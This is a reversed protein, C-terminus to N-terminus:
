EAHDADIGGDNHFLVGTVSKKGRSSLFTYVLFRQYTIPLLKATAVTIM